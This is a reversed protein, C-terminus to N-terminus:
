PVDERVSNTDVDAGPRRQQNMTIALRAREIGHQEILPVLSAMKAPIADKSVVTLVNEERIPQVVNAVLLTYVTQRTLGVTELANFLAPTDFVSLEVAYWPPKAQVGTVQVLKVGVIVGAAGKDSLVTVGKLKTLETRLSNEVSARIAAEDCRVVIKIKVLPTDATSQPSISAPLAPSAPKPSASPSAGQGFAGSLALTSLLLGLVFTKKKMLLVFDPGVPDIQLLRGREYNCGCKYLACLTPKNEGLRDFNFAIRM